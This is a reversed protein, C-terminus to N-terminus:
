SPAAMPHGCAHTSDAPKPPARASTALFGLTEIVTDHQRWLVTRRTEPDLFSGTISERFHRQLLNGDADYLRKGVVSRTLSALLVTGDCVIDTPEDVIAPETFSLTCTIHNGNEYCVANFSEPPAPNLTAPDVVTRAAAPTALAVAILLGAAM